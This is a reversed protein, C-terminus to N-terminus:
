KSCYFLMQSLYSRALEEDMAVDGNLYRYVPLFGEVSQARPQAFLSWTRELIAKEEETPGASIAGIPGSGIISITAVRKPHALALEQAIHGGMSHGVLHASDIELHDLLDIADAALKPWTCEGQAGSRGIDRHDYRILEFRELQNCFHDSWAWAGSMAGAILLLPTGSGEREYYPIL